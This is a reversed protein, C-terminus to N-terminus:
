SQQELYRKYEEYEEQSLTREEYETELNETEEKAQEKMQKAMEKAEQAKKDLFLNMQFDVEDKFWSLLKEAEKVKSKDTILLNPQYLYPDPLEQM